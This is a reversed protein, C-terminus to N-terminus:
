RMNVERASYRSVSRASLASWRSVPRPMASPQTPASGAAAGRLGPHRLEGGRAVEGVDTTASAARPAAGRDQDEVLVALPAGRELQQGIGVEAISRRAAIQGLEFSKRRFDALLEFDVGFIRDIQVRCAASM